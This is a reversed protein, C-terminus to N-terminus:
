VFLWFSQSWYPLNSQHRGKYDTLLSILHSASFLFRRKSFTTINSCNTPEVKISIRSIAKSMKETELLYFSISIYKRKRTPIKICTCIYYKFIMLHFSNRNSLYPWNSHSRLMLSYSCESRKTLIKLHSIRM